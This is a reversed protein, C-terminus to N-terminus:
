QSQGNARMVNDRYEASTLFEDSENDPTLSGYEDSDSDSEHYNMENPSATKEHGYNTCTEDVDATRSEQEDDDEVDDDEEEVDDDEDVHEGLATLRAYVSRRIADSKDAAAALRVLSRRKSSISKPRASKPNLEAIATVIEASAKMMEASLQAMVRACERMSMEQSYLNFHECISIEDEVLMQMDEYYSALCETIKYANVASERYIKKKAAKQQRRIDAASGNSYNEEVEDVDKDEEVDDEGDVVEEEVDDDDLGDVGKEDAREDNLQSNLAAFKRESERQLPLSRLLQDYAIQIDAKLKTVSCVPLEFLELPLEFLECLYLQDGMLKNALANSATKTENVIRTAELNYDDSLGRRRRREAARTAKAAKQRRMSEQIPKSHPQVSWINPVQMDCGFTATAPQAM